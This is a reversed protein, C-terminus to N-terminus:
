GADEATRAQASPSQAPLLQGAASKTPDVPQKEFALTQQTKSFLTLVGDQVTFREVAGLSELYISEQEMAGAPEMCAMETWYLDNIHVTDREVTYSGGFTNCGASGSIEGDEFRITPQAGAIPAHQNLATLYWKTGELETRNATASGSCAALLLAFLILLISVRKM